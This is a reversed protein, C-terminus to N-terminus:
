NMKLKSLGLFNVIYPRKKEDLDLEARVKKQEYERLLSNLVENAMWDDGLILLLVLLM